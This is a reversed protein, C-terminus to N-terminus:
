NKYSFGKSGTYGVDPMVSRNNYNPNSEVQARGYQQESNDNKRYPDLEKMKIDPGVAHVSDDKMDFVFKEKGCSCSVSFTKSRSDYNLKPGDDHSKEPNKIVSREFESFGNGEEITSLKADKDHKKHIEFANSEMIRAIIANKLEKESMMTRAEINRDDQAATFFAM